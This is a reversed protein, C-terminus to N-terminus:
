KYEKIDKSLGYFSCLTDIDVFIGKRIWIKKDLNNYILNLMKAVTAEDANHLKRHCNPCLPIINEVIDLDNNFLSSHELKIIHHGELYRENKRTNFYAQKHWDRDVNHFAFFCENSFKNIAEWKINGKRYSQHKKYFDEEKINLAFLAIEKLYKFFRKFFLILKEKKEVSIFLIDPVANLGHEFFLDVYKRIIKEEVELLDKESFCDCAEKFLLYNLILFIDARFNIYGAANKVRNHVVPLELISSCDSINLKDNRLIEIAIDESVQLSPNYLITFLLLRNKEEELLAASSDRKFDGVYSNLVKNIEILPQKDIQWYKGKLLYLSLFLYVFSDNGEEIEQYLREALQNLNANNETQRFLLLALELRKFKQKNLKQVEPLFCWEQWARADQKRAIYEPVLESIYKSFFTWRRINTTIFGFLRHQTTSHGLESFELPSVGNLTNLIESITM